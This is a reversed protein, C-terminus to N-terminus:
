EMTKAWSGNPYIHEPGLPDVKLNLEKGTEVFDLSEKDVLWTVKAPYPPTGPLHVQLEMQVKSVGFSSIPGAAASTITAWAWVARERRTNEDVKVKKPNNKNRTRFYFWLLVGFTLIPILIGFLETTTM